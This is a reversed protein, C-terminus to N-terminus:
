NGLTILTILRELANKNKSDNKKNEKKGTNQVWFLQVISLLLFLNRM